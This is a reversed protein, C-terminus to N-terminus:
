GARFPLILHFTSGKSLESEVRIDGGLMTAYAKSISLGLGSGEMKQTVHGEVRIFRDFITNVQDPPIGHGTDKVFFSFHEHEPQCGVEISGSSTFKIANKLLNTLIGELKFRDTVLRFTNDPLECRCRLELGKEDTQPRFFDCLDTLMERIRVPEPEVQVHGAEIKSMEIIDNITALLRLGSKNVIAIYRDREEATLDMDQLLELFGLIGNMPTRIEHSMNALFLSKLRNSEEAEDKAKLLALEAEKRKTVDRGMILLGKRSGDEHYIPVKITDFYIDNGSEDKIVEETCILKGADWAMQDSVVCYRLATEMEPVLEILELDTKGYFDKGTLHFLELGAGNVTLWRGEADKFFVRDPMSEILHRLNWESEKVQEEAKKRTTIDRFTGMLCESGGHMVISAVVEVHIITKDARRVVTEIPYFNTPDKASETHLEFTSKNYEQFQPPHLDTQHIGIIRERPLQLMREAAKNVDRIVGTEVDAIFIADAANEFIMRFYDAQERFDPLPSVDTKEPLERNHDTM